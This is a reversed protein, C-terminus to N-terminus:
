VAGKSLNWVVKGITNVFNNENKDKEKLIEDPYKKKDPNDSLIAIDGNIAKEIRKVRTEGNHNIIFIGKGEIQSTDVLLLDKDCIGNTGNDMSNGDAQTIYLRSTDTVGVVRSLFRKDFSFHEEVPTEDYLFNGQGASPSFNLVFPVDVSNLSSVATNIQTLKTSPLGFYEPFKIKLKEETDATISRSGQLISGVLTPSVGILRSFKSKNGNAYEYLLEKFMQQTITTTTM